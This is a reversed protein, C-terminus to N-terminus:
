PGFDFNNCISIASLEFFDRIVTYYDRDHIMGLFAAIDKHHLENKKM